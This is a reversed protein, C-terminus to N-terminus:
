GVRCQRGTQGVPTLPLMTRVDANYSCRPSLAAASGTGAWARRPSDYWPFGRCIPPRRDHAGCLRVAPDFLDCRVEYVRRGDTDVYTDEASWHDQIFMANAHADAGPARQTLM